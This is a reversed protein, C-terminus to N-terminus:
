FTGHMQLSQKTKASPKPVRKPRKAPPGNDGIAKAAKPRKGKKSFTTPNIPRDKVLAKSATRRGKKPTRILEDQDDDCSPKFSPDNKRAKKLPPAGTIEAVEALPVLPIYDEKEAEEEAEEEATTPKYRPDTAKGGKRSSLMLTSKTKQAPPTTLREAVKNDYAADVLAAELRRRASTNVAKLHQEMYEKTKHESREESLFGITTAVSPTMWKPLFSSLFSKKSATTRDTSFMESPQPLTNAM